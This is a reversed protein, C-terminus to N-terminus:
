GGSIDVSGDEAAAAGGGLGGLGSGVGGTARTWQGGGTRGAPVRLQGASYKLALFVDEAATGPLLYRSADPRIYRYASPQMFRAADPRMGGHRSPAPRVLDRNHTM